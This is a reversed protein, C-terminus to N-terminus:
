TTGKGCMQFLENNVSVINDGIYGKDGIIKCGEPIRSLLGDPKRFIVLNTEGAQHPSSIWAIKSEELDIAIEYAVCLKHHKHSYWNKDPYSRPEQIRCHTGDVSLFWSILGNENPLVQDTWV